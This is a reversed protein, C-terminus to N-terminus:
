YEPELNTMRFGLSNIKNKEQIYPILNKLFIEIELNVDKIDKGIKILIQLIKPFSYISFIKDEIVLSKM